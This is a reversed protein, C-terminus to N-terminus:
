TEAPASLLSADHENGCLIEFSAEIPNAGVGRSRAFADKARSRHGPPDIPFRSNEEAGAAGQQQLQRMRPDGGGDGILRRDKGVRDSAEMPCEIHHECHDKPRGLLRKRDGSPKVPAM